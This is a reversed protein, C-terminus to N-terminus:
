RIPRRCVWTLEFTTTPWACPAMGLHGNVSLELVDRLYTEADDDWSSCNMLYAATSAPSGLMSGNSGRQHRLMDFNVHGVLAELSHLLTSSSDAVYSPPIKSLKAARLAALFERGPFDISIGEDSLLRLQSVVLVEFGVQDCAGVNWENLLGRLAREADLCRTQLNCTDADWDNVHKKLALLAAATTLIGDVQSGYSPWGGDPLQSSLLARFCEPFLWSRKGSHCKQVMSIWATDYLSPSMSGFGYKSQCQESLSAILDAPHVQGRDLM